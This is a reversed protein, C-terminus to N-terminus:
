ILKRDKTYPTDEIWNKWQNTLERLSYGLKWRYIIMINNCNSRDLNWRRPIKVTVVELMPDQGQGVTGWIARIGTSPKSKRLKMKWSYMAFCILLIHTYNFTKLWNNWMYENYFPQCWYQNEMESNWENYTDPKEWGRKASIRM